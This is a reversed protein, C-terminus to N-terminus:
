GRPIINVAQSGGLIRADKLRRAASTIADLARRKNRALRYHVTLSYTKDEIVVGEHGAMRRELSRAWAGVRSAYAESEGWPEVGHNGAVHWFPIRGLRTTLDTRSRGSIVVCPYREAVGCLLRKTRSRLRVSQPTRAVPALTGDYDFAVLVNSAAFQALTLLQRPSLINPM